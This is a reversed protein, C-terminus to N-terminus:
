HIKKFFGIHGRNVKLEQINQTKRHETVTLLHIEQEVGGLLLVVFDILIVNSKTFPNNRGPGAQESNRVLSGTWGRDCDPAFLACSIECSADLPAQTIEAPQHNPLNKIKGNINPIIM